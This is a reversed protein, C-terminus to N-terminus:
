ISTPIPSHAMTSCHKLPPQIRSKKCINFIDLKPNWFAHSPKILKWRQHSLLKWIQWKGSIKRLELNKPEQALLALMSPPALPVLPLPANRSKHTKEIRWNKPQRARCFLHSTATFFRSFLSYFFCSFSSDLFTGESSRRRPWRLWCFCRLCTAWNKMKENRRNKTKENRQGKTKENKSNRTEDNEWKLM